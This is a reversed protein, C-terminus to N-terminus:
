LVILDYFLVKYKGVFRNEKDYKFFVLTQRAKLSTGNKIFKAVFMVTPVCEWV